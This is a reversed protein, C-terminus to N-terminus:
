KEIATRSNVEHGFLAPHPIDKLIVQKERVQVHTVVQKIAPAAPRPLRTGHIEIFDHTYQLEGIQKVPLGM